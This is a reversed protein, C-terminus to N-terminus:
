LATKGTELKRFRCYEIIILLSGLFILLDGLSWVASACPFSIVDGLFVLKTDCSIFAYGRSLSINPFYKEFMGRSVPMTGSNAIIVASNMIIGTSVAVMSLHRRNALGFFFFFFAGCYYLLIRELHGNLYGKGAFFISFVSSVALFIFAQKTM